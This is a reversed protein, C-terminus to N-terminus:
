SSSSFVPLVTYDSDFILFSFHSFVWGCPAHQARRRTRGKTREVGNAENKAPSDTKSHLAVTGDTSGAVGGMWGIGNAKRPVRRWFSASRSGHAPHCPTGRIFEDDDMNNRDSRAMADVRVVVLLSLLTHEQCWCTTVFPVFFM